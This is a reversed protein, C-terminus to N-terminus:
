FKTKTWTQICFDYAHQHDKPYCTEEAIEWDELNWNPFFADAELTVDVQTLLMKDAIEISQAYVQGGGIVFVKDAMSAAIKLADDLSTTQLVQPNENKFGSGSVVIHTRGPLVGPLSEFTKRGMIMPYGITTTKFHSFDKPLHWLMKNDKGLARNKAIAAIIIIEPKSKMEM